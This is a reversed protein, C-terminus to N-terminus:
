SYPLESASPLWKWKKNCSSQDLSQGDLRGGLMCRVSQQYTPCIEPDLSVNNGHSDETWFM